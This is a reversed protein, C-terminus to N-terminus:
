LFQCTFDMSILEETGVSIPHGVTFAVLRHTHEYQVSSFEIRARAHMTQLEFLGVRESRAVLLGFASDEVILSCASEVSNLEETGLSIPPQGVTFAVLRHTHEYQVSSFEIRARAHMTQLEFLGVRESRAVLLGFASDEVILSCASEM